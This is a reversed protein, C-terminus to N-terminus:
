KTTEGIDVSEEVNEIIKEIDGEDEDEKEEENGMGKKRHQWGPFCEENLNDIDERYEKEHSIADTGSAEDQM